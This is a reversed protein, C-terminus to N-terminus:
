SSIAATKRPAVAPRQLLAISALLAFLVFPLSAATRLPLLLASTSNAWGAFAFSSGAVISAAVWPWILVGALLLALIRLPWSGNMVLDRQSWLCLVGPILVIQDYVAVGSPLLVLSGALITSLGVAFYSSGVAEARTNWGVRLMVGFLTLSLLYGFAKGLVLESLPRPTYAQYDLVSHYWARPWGPVLAESVGVLLAMTIGFGMLFNKRNAWDAVSWAVLWLVLLLVLQPKISALAVLSGGLMLNGCDMSLVAAALIVGVLLAPQQAYLAELVPYSTLTLIVAIAMGTGSLRVRMSKAWFLVSAATSIPLLFSFALRVTFFSFPLLPIAVLDVYLPYAFARYNAAPDTARRQDLPRGYLGTQIRRTVHPTYPDTRSRLLERGTLWIPYLDCGYEVGGGMERQGNVARARPIFLGFYFYAMGTALLVTLALAARSGPRM